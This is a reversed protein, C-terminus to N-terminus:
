LVKDMYRMLLGSQYLLFENEVEDIDGDNHKSNENFYKDLYSFVQTIINRIETSIKEDKFRKQIERINEVLGRQNDLKFRLFEEVCRRISEASKIFSEKTRQKYFNLAAVFHKQSAENLFSFVDEILGKDLVEEGRPYVIVEEKIKTISANIDSIYFAEEVKQYLDHRYFVRRNYSETVFPLSFILEILFYFQAEDTESNLADRINYFHKSVGQYRIIKKGLLTCFRAVGNEEVQVDILEFVNLIRQKFLQFEKVPDLQADAIGFRKKFAKYKQKFDM